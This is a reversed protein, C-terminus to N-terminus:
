AQSGSERRSESGAQSRAQPRADGRGGQPREPQARRRRRFVLPVGDAAPQYRASVEDFAALAGELDAGAPLEFADFGCRRMFELQDRRVDGTARLEGRFGRAERLLRALSYGRGDTFKEFVICVLDLRELDSAITAPDTTAPVEVGLGGGREVLSEREARFRDLSVIVCDSGCVHGPERDGDAPPPRAQAPGGCPLADGDPVRLWRDREIAGHRIIRM